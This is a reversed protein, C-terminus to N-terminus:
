KFFIQRAAIGLNPVQCMLSLLSFVLRPFVCSVGSAILLPLPSNEGRPLLREIKNDEVSSLLLFIVASNWWYVSFVRIYILVNSFSTPVIPRQHNWKMANLMIILYSAWAESIVFVYKLTRFYLVLLNVSHKIWFIPLDLSLDVRYADFSDHSQLISINLFSPKM